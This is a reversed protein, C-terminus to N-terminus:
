ETIKLCTKHSKCYSYILCTAAPCEQTSCINSIVLHWWCVEQQEVSARSSHVYDISEMCKVDAKTYLEMGEWSRCETLLNYVCDLFKLGKMGRNATIYVPLITGVGPFLVVTLTNTVCLVGGPSPFLSEPMGRGLVVARATSSLCWCTPWSPESVSASFRICVLSRKWNPTPLGTGCLTIWGTGTGERRHASVSWIRASTESLM